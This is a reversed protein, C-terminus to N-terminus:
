FDLSGFPRGKKELHPVEVLSKSKLRQGEAKLYSSGRFKLLLHRHLSTVKQWLKFYPLNPHSELGAKGVEHILGQSTYNHQLSKRVNMPQLTAFHLALESPLDCSMVIHTPFDAVFEM